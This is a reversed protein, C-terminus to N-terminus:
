KDGELLSHGTMEGPKEIGLLELITPAIDCLMYKRGNARINMGENCLIFPVKSTTHKTVTGGTDADLMEEANGHDATILALGGAQNIRDVVKGVCSDVVEVAKIAADLFGTHGVMDPNAYNVIIVDYFGEDIKKLLTDTVEYASMEPKMEYTAVKPSPILIRDEGKEPKEVGGNFFFTVHAYKETEAIRLQRLNHCSLVEGLTNKIKQPPYAVPAKFNKDYQTMCVFFVKPPSSGRDFKDFSNSIFADTIQRARDPRFNFFIVSDGSKIKAGGEDDIKVKAPVVFEDDKGNDYSKQVLERPSDFQESNRYVLTRYAKETREWRNDRDMAYYRGSVTAIEGSCNQKLFDQIEELYPIASKPPVDRGDLFAHVYLKEVKKKAALRILAKLHNIHSHVGGDSVLGMLHLSGGQNANDIAELLQENNYFDGEKISKNIRTYEQYVVRGAGINLHGVESNGMQGEPLGVAEGSAELEIYPYVKSYRDMNPTNGMCIANGKTECGIGWGDLIVLCVPKKM